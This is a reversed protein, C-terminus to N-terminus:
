QWNEEIHVRIIWRNDGVCGNTAVLREVVGDSRTAIGVVRDGLVLGLGNVDRGQDSSILFEGVLEVLHVETIVCMHLRLHVSESSGDPVVKESHLSLSISRL